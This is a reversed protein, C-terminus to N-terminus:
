DKVQSEIKSFRSSSYEKEPAKQLIEEKLKETDVSQNTGSAM